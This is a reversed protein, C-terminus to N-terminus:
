LMEKLTLIEDHFIRNVIFENWLDNTEATSVLSTANSFIIKSTIHMGVKPLGFSTESDVKGISSVFPDLTAYVLDSLM